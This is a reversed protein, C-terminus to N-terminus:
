IQDASEKRELYVTPPLITVGEIIQWFYSGFHKFDSTLLHSAHAAIAAQLIPLDKQPLEVGEPLPQYSLTDIVLEVSELLEDLRDRQEPEFLNRAAEAAAYPSSILCAVEPLRWLKLLKATPRSAASFLVSADLFVMDM